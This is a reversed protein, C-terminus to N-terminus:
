HFRPQLAARRFLFAEELVVVVVAMMPLTRHTIEM